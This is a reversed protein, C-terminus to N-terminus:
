AEGHAHMDIIAQAAEDGELKTGKALDYLGNEYCIGAMLAVFEGRRKAQDTAVQTASISTATRGPIIGFALLGGRTGDDIYDRGKVHVSGSISWLAIGDPLNGFQVIPCLYLESTEDWRVWGLNILDDATATHFNTM